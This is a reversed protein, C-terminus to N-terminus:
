KCAQLGPGKSAYALFNQVNNCKSFAYDEKGASNIKSLSKASGKSIKIWENAIMASIGCSYSPSAIIWVIGHAHILGNATFEGFIKVKTVMWSNKKLRNLWKELLERMRVWQLIHDLKRTYSKKVCSRIIGKSDDLKMETKYLCHDLPLNFNCAFPVTDKKDHIATDRVFEYSGDALNESVDTLSANRFFSDPSQNGSIDETFGYDNRDRNHRKSDFDDFVIEFM